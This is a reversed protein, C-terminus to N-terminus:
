IPMSDVREYDRPVVVMPVPLARLIKNATSGIFLKNREGLRSSGIILVEGEQWELSDIAEEITRGHAVAVSVDHGHPLRAAADSLVTNAHRHAANTAEGGEDPGADLTVLSVLRLPVGRRNAAGIATGIAADAGARQGTALTFRTVPEIRNFGRPALAVPVPSAHLLANAVSGVTFRKFLGNSAAGVVILGADDGAAEILGAAFSEAPLARFAAEVGDPVLALSERAAALVLKEAETAPTEDPRPGAYPVHPDVVHVIDLSADQARALSSALAVADAGRENSSYGVVYRM